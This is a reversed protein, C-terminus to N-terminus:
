GGHRVGPGGPLKPSSAWHFGGLVLNEDVSLNPVIERGEPVYVIGARV